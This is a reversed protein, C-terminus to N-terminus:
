SAEAGGVLWRSPSTGAWGRGPMDLCPSKHITGVNVACRDVLSAGVQQGPLMAVVVGCVKVTAEPGSAIQRALLRGGVWEAATCQVGVRIRWTELRNM